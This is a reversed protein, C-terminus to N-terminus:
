ILKYKIEPEINQGGDHGVDKELKIELVNWPKWENSLMGRNTIEYHEWLDNIFWEEYNLPISVRGTAKEVEIDTKLNNDRFDFTFVGNRWGDYSGYENSDDENNIIDGNFHFHDYLAYGQYAIMTPIRQALWGAMNKAKRRKQEDIIGEDWYYNATFSGNRFVEIEVKNFRKVPDDKFINFNKTALDSINILVMIENPEFYKQNSMKDVLYLGPRSSGNDSIKTSFIVSEWSENKVSDLILQKVTEDM